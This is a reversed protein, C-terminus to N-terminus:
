DSEESVYEEDPEDDAGESWATRLIERKWGPEHVPWGVVKLAGSFHMAPVARTHVDHWCNREVPALPVARHLLNSRRFTIQGQDCVTVIVPPQFDLMRRAILEHSATRYRAKLKLLDWDWAQADPGFWVTPLLLRNALHNAVEERMGPATLAPDVGLRRFVAEAVHEGLEHGVAWQRRELRPERRMLISAQGDAATAATACSYAVGDFRRLRVYRARGPQRDDAAVIVGLAAALRFTDVPPFEVKAAVLLEMATEDLAAVFEEATIEPLMALGGM